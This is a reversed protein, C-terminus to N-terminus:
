QPGGQIRPTVTNTTPGSNGNMRAGTQGGQADGAQDGVGGHGPIGQQQAVQQAMQQQKDLEEDTPVIDQGPLGLTDAIPRLAKARGKPGIIQMDIPNATAQLFEMQRARQTEKQIAVNVGLVRVEEEGTLLGTTDTLMVMDFLAGIIGEMVDRDINSAVTQLIKSSNSMLMSLGSATRGISGTQAGTMYRPIASMEDALETWFSYVGMTEQANNSPQFFSVPPETNNGMPDSKVHWRKWPFMSESDEGPSVRDDNVVVQPGSAMSLNNVMARLTANCVNQIDALIDPLGNGVPTGPVKEFSTIFYQHRKRPSPILQTKIVHRGIVWVNVFYDRMEDQILKPDMGQELLFRGQANGQFELCDIMGSQNFRPNERSELVSRENDTQDWTDSLGGRGYEDLVARVETQDYGPIDLLDNLDARTLRSREVVNADSIDAAGPTWYLDFPDVRSWVLKPKTVTVAKGNQWEVDTKLRVTPGKICAYPFLPLDTIFEQLAHYFGGENLIDQLKDEAIKAQQAAKKKAAQRAGETLQGIRDRLATAQPLQGGNQVITGLESHVLQQIAQMVEPPIAPDPDPVLGWSKDAGLYVDRLLSSTGRCKMAIVRAYVDSGGFRKIENLQSPDYQGNFARLASLLRDSWGRGVTDRHRKMLSYQDLVFSALSSADPVPPEAPTGARDAQQKALVATTDANSVVRLAGFSGPGNAM